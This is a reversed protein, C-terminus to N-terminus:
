KQMIGVFGAYFRLGIKLVLLCMKRRFCMLEEIQRVLIIRSVKNKIFFDVSPRIQSVTAYCGKVLNYRISFTMTFTFDITRAHTVPSNLYLAIRKEASRVLM